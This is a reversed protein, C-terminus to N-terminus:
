PPISSCQPAPRFLKLQLSWTEFARLDTKGKNAADANREHLKFSSSCDTRGVQRGRLSYDIILRSAILDSRISLGRSKSLTACVLNQPETDRSSVFAGKRMGSIIKFDHISGSPSNPM